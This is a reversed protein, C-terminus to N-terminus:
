RTDWCINTPRQLKWVDSDHLPKSAALMQKADTLSGMATTRDNDSIEHM